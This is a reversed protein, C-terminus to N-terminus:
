WYKRPALYVPPECERGTGTKSGDVAYESSKHLWASECPVDPLLPTRHTLLAVQLCLVHCKSQTYKRGLGVQL